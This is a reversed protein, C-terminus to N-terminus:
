RPTLHARLLRNWVRDVQMRRDDVALVTARASSEKVAGRKVMLVQSGAIRGFYLSRNLAGPENAPDLAHQLEHPMEWTMAIRRATPPVWEQLLRLVASKTEAGRHELCEDRIIRFTANTALGYLLALLRAGFGNMREVHVAHMEAADAAYLTQEWITEPFKAFLGERTTLVPHLLATAILGRIGDTGVMTVARELSEVSKRVGRYFASNALRVLNGMLAPDDGIIAAFERMSGQDSNMTSLLKPLLSPRRPLYRAQVELSALAACATARMARMSEDEDAADEHATALAPQEDLALALFQRLAEEAHAANLPEDVAARAKEPALQVLVRPPAARHGVRARWWAGLMELTSAFGLRRAPIM